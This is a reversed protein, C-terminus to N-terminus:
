RSPRKRKRLWEDVWEILLFILMLAFFGVILAGAIVLTFAFAVFGILYLIWNTVKWLGSLVIKLARRSRKTKTPSSNPNSMQSQKM